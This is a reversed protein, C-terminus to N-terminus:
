IKSSKRIYSLMATTNGQYQFAMDLLSPNQAEYQNTVVTNVSVDCATARTCVNTPTL